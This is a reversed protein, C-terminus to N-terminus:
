GFNNLTPEDHLFINKFGKREGFFDIPLVIIVLPTDCEPRTM